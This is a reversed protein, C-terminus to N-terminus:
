STCLRHRGSQIYTSLRWHRAYLSHERVVHKAIHTYLVIIGQKQGNDDTPMGNGNQRM